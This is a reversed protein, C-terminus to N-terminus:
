SCGALISYYVHVSITSVYAHAYDLWVIYQIITVYMCLYSCFINRPPISATVSAFPSFGAGNIAAVAIQYTTNSSLGTLTVNLGTTHVTGTTSIASGEAIASGEYNYYDTPYADAYYDHETARTDATIEIYDILYETIIGFHLEPLPPSWSVNM